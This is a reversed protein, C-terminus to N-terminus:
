DRRVVKLVRRRNLLGWDRLKFVRSECDIRMGLDRKCGTLLRYVTARSMRVARTLDTITARRTAIVRLIAITERLPLKPRRAHDRSRNQTRRHRSAQNGTHSYRVGIGEDRCDEASRLLRTRAAPKGLLCLSRRSSVSSAWLPSQRNSWLGANNWGLNTCPLMAAEPKGRDGSKSVAVAMSVRLCPPDVATMMRKM